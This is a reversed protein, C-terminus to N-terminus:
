PLDGDDGYATERDYTYSVPGEPRGNWRVYM